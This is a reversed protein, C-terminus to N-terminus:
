NNRTQAVDFESECCDDCYIMNSNKVYKIEYETSSCMNVWSVKRLACIFHNEFVDIIM